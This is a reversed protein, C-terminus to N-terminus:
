TTTLSHKKEVIEMFQLGMLIEGMTWGTEICCPAWGVDHPVGHSEWNEIDFARTWAGELLRDDSHIQCSLLFSAIGCWAEYFRKEGTALYAYAYGLPLWNNSYLLDVVPDGNNALLACEGTHNRSCCATYGTDWEPVAGCAHRHADLYSMVRCLWGYHEEKGTIEYLVALAFLLRCNEETESTERDTDPYLSMLTGLGREAVELYRKDGGARYALLLVAHYYANYHARPVWGPRLLKERMADNFKCIDTRPARIGDEATTNILYDLAECIEEFHPVKGDVHQCLLAGLIARAVDDGYCTEWAIETWRIMGRHEGEKVQMYQFIFDFMDNAVTYAKADNALLARLMFAGAVEGTCDARVQLRTAQLGSRASIHHSFGEKVGGRCRDNLMEANEFWHLGRTVASSVDQVRKVTQERYQCVPAEFSVAIEEGALFQVLARILVEFSRRPALRARRFNCLRFGCVILNQERWMACHGKQYDADNMDIHAHACVYDHYTLIPYASANRCAYKICDNEHGDLVDGTVLGPVSLTRGDFVMRHHTTHRTIDRYASAISLVFECLMPKGQSRFQEVSIRLSPNLTLGAESSGGLICLAEYDNPDFARTDTSMVTTELFSARLLRGLDSEADGILLLRNM